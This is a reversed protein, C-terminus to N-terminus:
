RPLIVGDFVTPYFVRETRNGIPNDTGPIMVRVKGGKGPSPVDEVGLYVWEDGRFDKILEGREYARVPSGFQNFMAYEHSMYDDM